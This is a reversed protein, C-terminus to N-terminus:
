PLSRLKSPFQILVNTMVEDSFDSPVNHGAVIFLVKYGKRVILVTGGGERPNDNVITWGAAALERRYFNAVASAINESSIKYLWCEDFLAGEELITGELNYRETEVGSPPLPPQYGEKFTPCAGGYILSSGPYLPIWTPLEETSPELGIDPTPTPTLRRTTPTEWPYRWGSPIVQQRSIISSFSNLLNSGFRTIAQYFVFYSVVGVVVAVALGVLLGIFGLGKQNKLRSGVTGFM